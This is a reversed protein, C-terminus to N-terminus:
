QDAGANAAADNADNNANAEAAVAEGPAPSDYPVGAQEAYAREIAQQDINDRWNGGQSASEQELTSFLGKKRVDAANAEKLPDVWGMGPGTWSCATYASRAKYFDPAGAPVHLKGLAFAEEIVADYILGAIHATFMARETMVGRWAEIISARTSSYNAKSYDLSLQEFSIGLASAFARLFSNRFEDVNPIAGQVREMKIEDNPGLVPIRQDGVKLDLEEYLDLKAEFESSYEGTIDDEVPALHAAVEEPKMTTKIFTALVANVAANQLLADDFRDLMRVHRFSTVLNTLARQMGARRKFFWHFAMPRGWFTEREVYDHQTEEISSTPDSPHTRRIHLGIMRGHRDLQRGKFLDNSDPKGDPNSIRDPDVLQVHTAWDTQYEERREEEYHIVGAVEADPGVLTRFAQWMLGGFQYHGETDCLCRRGTSWDAFVDAAQQGFEMAWQVDQGLARFNPMPNVRLAPGVVTNTKRDLAGRITENNRDLDRAARVARDRHKAEESKGSTQPMIFGAQGPMDLQRYTAPMFGAPVRFVPKDDAGRFGVFQPERIVKPDRQLPENRKSM